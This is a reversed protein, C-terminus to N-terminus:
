NLKTVLFFHFRLRRMEDTTANRRLCFMLLDCLNERCLFSILHTFLRYFVASLARVTTSSVFCFSEALFYSLKKLFFDSVKRFVVNFFNKARLDPSIEQM